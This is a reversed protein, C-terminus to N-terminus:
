FNFANSFTMANNLATAMLVLLICALLHQGKNMHKIGINILPSLLYLGFYASYFWFVRMIVPFFPTMFENEWYGSVQMTGNILSCIALWFM